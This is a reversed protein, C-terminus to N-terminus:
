SRARGRVRIPSKSIVRNATSREANPAEESEPRMPPQRRGSRRKRTLDKFIRLGQAQPPAVSRWKRGTPASKGGNPTPRERRGWCPPSQDDEVGSAGKRRQRSTAAGRGKPCLPKTPAEGRGRKQRSGSQTQPATDPRNGQPATARLKGAGGGSRTGAM